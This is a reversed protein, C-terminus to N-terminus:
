KLLSNFTVVKYFSPVTREFVTLNYQFRGQAADEGCVRFGRKEYFDKVMVNKRTPVYQGIASRKGKGQIIKLCHALFIEEIGRGLVRCSLLFTDFVGVDKEYKLIAVGVIGFDGFRDSLKLYFLDYDKNAVFSQIEAESYRKTTLNFQNTKQTLQAVRPIEADEVPLTKVVLQLSALFEDFNQYAKQGTKRQTEARYMSTRQLDEESVTLADFMGKQLLLAPYIALDQPVPLVYVEPCMGKVLECESQDDDVFIFSDMGLNLEEALSQINNAKNEWNIRWSVLDSQRLLCHPHNNLVELVDRENNKSCLAVLIGRKILQVVNQQVHYFVNGPYEHPNLQIGQLGDEGIIGGWLTNDCDLILCKKTRGKLARVLKMAELAYANLFKNTVLSKAMYWLRYDRAQAAGLKQELQNWDILYVDKSKQCLRRLGANIDHNKNELSGTNKLSLLGESYTLPLLFTNCVILATSREKLAKVMKEIRDLVEQVSFQNKLYEPVFNEFVLSLVVVDPQSQYLLSGPELIDQMITDYGGQNVSLPVQEVYGWGELFWQFNDM